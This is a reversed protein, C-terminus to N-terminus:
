GALFYMPIVKQVAHTQESCCVLDTALMDETLAKRMNTENLALGQLVGIAVRLQRKMTAM